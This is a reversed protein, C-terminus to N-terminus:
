GGGLLTETASELRGLLRNLGEWKENGERDRTAADSRLREIEGRAYQIEVRLGAVKGEVIGEAVRRLEGEPVPVPAVTALKESAARSEARAEALEDRLADAKAEIAILKVEFAEVKKEADKIRDGYRLTGAVAGAITSGLLTAVTMLYQMGAPAQSAAETLQTSPDTM